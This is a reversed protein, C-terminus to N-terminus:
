WRRAAGTAVVALVGMLTCVALFTVGSAIWWPLHVLPWGVLVAAVFCSSVYGAWTEWWFLVGGFVGHEGVVNGHWYDDQIPRLRGSVWVTVAVNIAAVVGVL